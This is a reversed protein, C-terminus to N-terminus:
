EGTSKDTLIVGMNSDDLELTYKENTAILNDYPLDNDEVAKYTKSGFDTGCATLSLVIAVCCVATIIKKIM